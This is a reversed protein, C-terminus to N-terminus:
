DDKKEKRYDRPETVARMERCVDCTNMHYTALHGKSMWWGKKKACESCIWSITKM